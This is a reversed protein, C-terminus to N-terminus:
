TIKSNVMRTNQGLVVKQTHQEFWQHDFVNSQFSKSTEPM